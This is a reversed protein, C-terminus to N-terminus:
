CFGWWLHFLLDFLFLVLLNVFELSRLFDNIVVNIINMDFIVFFLGNLLESFYDNSVHILMLFTTKFGKLLFLLCFSESIGFIENDSRINTVSFCNKFLNLLLEHFIFFCSFSLLDRDLRLSLFLLSSVGFLPHNFILLLNFFILVVFIIEESHTNFYKRFLFFNNIKWVEISRINYNGRWDTKFWNDITFSSSFLNWKQWRNFNKIDVSGANNHHLIPVMQNVNELVQIVHWFIL